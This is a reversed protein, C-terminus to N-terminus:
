PKSPSIQAIFMDSPNRYYDVQTVKFVVGLQHSVKVTDGVRVDDQQATITLGDQWEDMVCEAESFYHHHRHRQLLDIM